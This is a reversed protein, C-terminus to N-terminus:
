APEKQRAPLTLVDMALSADPLLLRKPDVLYVEGNQEDAYGLARRAENKQYAWWGRPISAGGANTPIKKSRHSRLYIM